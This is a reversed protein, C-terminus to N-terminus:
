NNNLAERQQRIARKAAEHEEETKSFFHTGDYRAVFYLYPTDEPKLVAKLSALSPNAIPTPPLGKNTYTNYPSPTNVQTYSLPQDATQEIGLGYEVTPDAELKIDKELRNMFVGAITAREEDIAAEKEVISALILWQYFSLETQQQNEQYLPLAVEEFQRLMMQIIEQPTVLDSALRYTDPYLFGELNPLNEPLWAYQDRPIKRSAEVFEAASFYGLSEFYAAMQGITWGEPITFSLKIVDGQWLRAAIAPLSEQPSIKYIGAKFDGTPEQLKLRLSWLRWALPSQILKAVKLDQGIEQTTTGSPIKIQLLNQEDEATFNQETPSTAWSWWSWGQLTCFALFVPLFALYYFWKLFTRM